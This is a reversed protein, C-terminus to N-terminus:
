VRGSVPMQPLWDLANSGGRASSSPASIVSQNIKPRLVIVSETLKRRSGRLGIANSGGLTSHVSDLYQVEVFWADSAMKAIETGSLGNSAEAEPFTIIVDCGRERLNKLLDSMASRAKSRMSFESAPRENLSPARGKGEIKPWGGRAIGELVHYFRSYQVASYPPDLFVLDSDNLTTALSEASRVVSQGRQKAYVPSIRSIASYVTTAVDKSWSSEIHRLLSSTPQFPQATHGPAAACASAADLLAAMAVTREPEEAPLSDHLRDLTRAQSLSFYHGGYDRCVFGNRESAADQRMQWVADPTLNSIQSLREKELEPLIWDHLIASGVLSATREIVSASFVRAYEQLDASLVPIDANEAVFNGVAGSGSFLDVFRGAKAVNALTISGLEGELLSAKSGMYKM